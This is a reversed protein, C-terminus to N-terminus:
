VAQQDATTLEDSDTPLTTHITQIKRSRCSCLETTSTYSSYVTEYTQASPPPHLDEKARVSPPLLAIWFSYRFSHDMCWQRPPGLYRVPM